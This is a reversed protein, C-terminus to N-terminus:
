QDVLDVVGLPTALIADYNRRWTMKGAIPFSSECSATQMCSAALLGPGLFALYPLGGPLARGSRDILGGLGMGMAVLFLTPQLFSLFLSGRWVRRYVM